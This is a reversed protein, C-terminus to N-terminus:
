KAALKDSVTKIINGTTNEGLWVAVSVCVCVCM